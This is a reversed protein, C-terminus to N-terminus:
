KEMRKLYYEGNGNKIKNKSIIIKEKKEKKSLSPSYYLLDEMTDEIIGRLARAGTKTELACTAITEFAEEEFEIKMGIANLLSIYQKLTSDKSKKLINILDEKELQEIEVIRHMRGIFELLMGYEVFTKSDLKTTKEKKKTSSLFGMNGSKQKITEIDSFAGAFVFMINSTDVIMEEGQESLGFDQKVGDIIKLLSAQVKIDSVGVNNSNALKDIEDIFVIGHEAKEIDGHASRVLNQIIEVVDKGKYGTESYSTIDITVFPVDLIKALNEVLYTKGCGTPGCLLVNSKQINLNPNACRIYHSYAAISLVKKAKEQGIVYEDLKEKIKEPTLKSPIEVKKKKRKSMSDINNQILEQNLLDLDNRTHNRIEYFISLCNECICNKGDESLFFLTSELVDGTKKCFDCKINKDEILIKEIEYNTNENFINENM